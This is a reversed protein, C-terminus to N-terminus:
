EAKHNRTADGSFLTKLLPGRARVRTNASPGLHHARGGITEYPLYLDRTKCATADSRVTHRVVVLGRRDSPRDDGATPRSDM